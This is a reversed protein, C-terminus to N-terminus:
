LCIKNVSVDVDGHTIKNAFLLLSFICEYFIFDYCVISIISLFGDIVFYVFVKKYVKVKQSNNLIYFVM